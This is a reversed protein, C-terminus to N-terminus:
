NKNIKLTKKKYFHVRTYATRMGYEYYYDCPKQIVGRVTKGYLTKIKSIVENKPSFADFDGLFVLTSKYYYNDKSDFFKVKPEELETESIIHQIDCDGCKKMLEQLEMEFDYFANITAISM